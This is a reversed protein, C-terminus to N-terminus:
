PIGVWRNYAKQLTNGKRTKRSPPKLKYFCRECVKKALVYKETGEPLPEKCEECKKCKM